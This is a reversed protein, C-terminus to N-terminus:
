VPTVTVSLGPLQTAKYGSAVPEVHRTCTNRRDHTAVEAIYTMAHVTTTPKRRCAGYDCETPHKTCTACGGPETTLPLNHLDCHATRHTNM